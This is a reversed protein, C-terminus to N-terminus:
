NIVKLRVLAQRLKKVRKRNVGFDSLGFRSSSRVMLRHEEAVYLIELYDVFKWVSSYHKSYLYGTRHQQINSRSLEDVVGVIQPWVTDIDKALEFSEIRQSEKSAETSVCNPTPPCPSLQWIDSHPSLPRTIACGVSLVSLIIVLFTNKKMM